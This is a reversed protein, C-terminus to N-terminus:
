RIWYTRQLDVYKILLPYFAYIDRAILSWEEQIEGEVKLLTICIVIRSIKKFFWLNLSFIATITKRGEREGKLIISRIEGKTTLM